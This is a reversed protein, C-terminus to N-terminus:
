KLLVDLFGKKINEKFFFFIGKFNILCNNKFNKWRSFEEDKYIKKTLFLEYFNIQAMEYSLRIQTIKCNM